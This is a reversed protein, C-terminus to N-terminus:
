PVQDGFVEDITQAHLLRRGWAALRELDAQDLREGVGEPLAGFREELQARLFFAAGLVRGRTEGRAEGRREVFSVYPM